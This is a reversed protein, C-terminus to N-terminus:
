DDVPDSYSRIGPTCNGSTVSLFYLLINVIAAMKAGLEEAIVSRIVTILQFFIDITCRGPIGPM